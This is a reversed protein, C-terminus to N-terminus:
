DPRPSPSTSARSDQRRRRRWRRWTAPWPVADTTMAEAWGGGARIGAATAESRDRDRDACLVRAGLSVLAEASSKGIGSAAGLVVATKGTLDFLKRYDPM